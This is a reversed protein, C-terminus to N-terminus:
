KGRENPKDEKNDKKLEKSLKELQEPTLKSIRENVKKDSIAQEFLIDIIEDTKSDKEM